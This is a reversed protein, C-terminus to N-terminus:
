EARRQEIWDLGARAQERMTPIHSTLAATLATKAGDLDDRDLLLGGLFYGSMAAFDSGPVLELCRRHAAIAGDIDGIQERCCGLMPYLPVTDLTEGGELIQRYIREAQAYEQKDYHKEAEGKLREFRRWLEAEDLKLETSRTEADRLREELRRRKEDDGELTSYGRRWSATSRKPKWSWKPKWGRKPVAGTKDILRDLDDRLENLMREFSEVWTHAGFNGHKSLHAYLAHFRDQNSPHTGPDDRDGIREQVTDLFEFYLLAICPAAQAIDRQIDAAGDSALMDLSNDVPKGGNFAGIVADQGWADAEHEMARSRELVLLKGAQKLEDAHNLVAHGYEHSLLFASMTRTLPM